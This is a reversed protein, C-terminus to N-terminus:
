RSRTSGATHDSTTYYVYDTVLDWRSNQLITESPSNKHAVNCKYVQNNNIVIDGVAYTSSTAWATFHSTDTQRVYSNSTISGTATTTINTKYSTGASWSNQSQFLNKYWQQTIDEDWSVTSTDFGDLDLGLESREIGTYDKDLTFTTSNLERDRFPAIKNRLEKMFSAVAFENTLDLTTLGPSSM